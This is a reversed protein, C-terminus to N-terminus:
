AYYLLQFADCISQQEQYSIYLVLRQYFVFFQDQKGFLGVKIDNQFLDNGVVSLLYIGLFKFYVGIYGWFKLLLIVDKGISHSQFLDDHVKDAIRYFMGLSAGDTNRELLIQELFFIIDNFDGDFISSFTNQEM